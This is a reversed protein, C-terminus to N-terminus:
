SITAQQTLDILMLYIICISVAAALVTIADLDKGLEGPDLELCDVIQGGHISRFRHPIYFRLRIHTNVSGVVPITLRHGHPVEDDAFTCRRHASGPVAAAFQFFRAARSLNHHGANSPRFACAPLLGSIHDLEDALRFACLFNCLFEACIVAGGALAANDEVVIIVDVAAHDLMAVAGPFRHDIGNRVPRVLIHPFKEIVVAAFAVREILAAELADAANLRSEAHIGILLFGRLQCRQHKGLIEEFLDDDTHIHRVVKIVIVTDEVAIQDVQQEVPHFQESVFRHPEGGVLFLQGIVM